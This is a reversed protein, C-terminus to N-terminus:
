YTFKSVGGIDARSGLDLKTKVSPTNELSIRDIGGRHRKKIHQLKTRVKLVKM